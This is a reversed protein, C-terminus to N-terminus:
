SANRRSMFLYSLCISYLHSHHGCVYLSVQEQIGRSSKIIWENLNNGVNESLIPNHSSM